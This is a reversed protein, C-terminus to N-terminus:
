LHANLRPLLAHEVDLDAWVRIGFQWSQAHWVTWGFRALTGVDLVGVLAAKVLHYVIMDHISQFFKIDLKRAGIFPHGFNGSFGITM